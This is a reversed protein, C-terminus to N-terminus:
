KIFYSEDACVLYIATTHNLQNVAIALILLSDFNPQTNANLESTIIQQILDVLVLTKM